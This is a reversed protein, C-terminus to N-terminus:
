FCPPPAITNPLAQQKCYATPPTLFCLVAAGYDLLSAGSWSTGIWSYPGGGASSVLFEGRAKQKTKQTNQSTQWNQRISQLLPFCTRPFKM